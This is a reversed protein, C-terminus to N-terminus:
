KSNPLINKVVRLYSMEYLLVETKVMTLFIQGCTANLLESMCYMFNNLANKKKMREFIMKKLRKKIHLAILFVKMPIEDM